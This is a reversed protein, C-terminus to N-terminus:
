EAVSDGSIKGIVTRTWERMQGGGGSRTAGEIRFEGVRIAEDPQLNHEEIALRKVEACADKYTKASEAFELKTEIAQILEPDEVIREDMAIQSRKKAAM